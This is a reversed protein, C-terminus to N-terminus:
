LLVHGGKAEAPAHVGSGVCMYRVSMCVSVCAGVRGVCKWVVCWTCGVGGVSGVGGCSGCGVSGWSGWQCISVNRERGQGGQRESEEKAGTGARNNGLAGQATIQM